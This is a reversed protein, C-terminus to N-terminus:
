EVVRVYCPNFQSSGCSDFGEAELTTSCSIVFAMFIMGLTFCIINSM